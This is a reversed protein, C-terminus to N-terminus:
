ENREKKRVVITKRCLITHKSKDEFEFTIPLVDVSGYYEKRQKYDYDPFNISKLEKKSVYKHISDMNIIFESNIGNMKNEEM